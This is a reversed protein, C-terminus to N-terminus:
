EYIDIVDNHGAGVQLLWYAIPIKHNIKISYKKCTSVQKITILSTIVM